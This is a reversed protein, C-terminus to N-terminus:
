ACPVCPSPCDTCPECTLCTVPTCDVTTPECAVTVSPCDITVPSCAVEVPECPAGCLEPCDSSLYHIAFITGPNGLGVEAELTLSGDYHKAGSSSDMVLLNYIITLEDGAELKVLTSYTSKQTDFFSLYPTFSSRLIDGNDRIEIEGVPNGTILETGTLDTSDVQVTLMYYGSVPATYRAYPILSVDGNPDDIINDFNITTSLVYATDEQFGLFAKYPTCNNLNTACLTGTNIQNFNGFQSCITNTAIQDAFLQRLNAVEVCLENFQATDIDAHQTSLSQACVDNFQSQEAELHRILGELTCLTNTHINESIVEKAQLSPACFNAAQLTLTCISDASLEKVCEQEAKIIDACLENTVVKKSRV